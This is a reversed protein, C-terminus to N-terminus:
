TVTKGPALGPGSQGLVCMHACACVCVALSYVSVCFCRRHDRIFGKGKILDAM